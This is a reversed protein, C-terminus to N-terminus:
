YPRTPESIHILSLDPAKFGSRAWRCSSRLPCGPCEPTTRCWIAGLDLMAQNHTWARGATLMEDAVQQAATATLAEGRVARALVRAVNTDVVAVDAEFAFAMVARATYPGVGPLALLEDLSTPVRGEHDNVIRKASEHLSVARRHYGLGEWSRIVSARTAVACSAPSPYSALFASYAPIVRAVQTQQLMVESVLVSWPDRTERWPLERVVRLEDRLRRRWASAARPGSTTATPDTALRRPM